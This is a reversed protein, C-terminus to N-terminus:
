HTRHVANADIFYIWWGPYDPHVWAYGRRVVGIVRVSNGSLDAESQWKVGIRVTQNENDSLWYNFPQIVGLNVSQITGEVTVTRDVWVAPDSVIESVTERSVPFRSPFLGCLFVAVVLVACVLASFVLARRRSVARKWMDCSEELDCLM